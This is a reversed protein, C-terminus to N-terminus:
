SEALARDFLGLVDAHSFHDNVDALTDAGDYHEAAVECLTPYRGRRGRHPHRRLGAEDGPEIPQTLKLLEVPAVALLAGCACWSVADRSRPDVDDGSRDRALTGTCHRSPDTIRAKAAEHLERETM